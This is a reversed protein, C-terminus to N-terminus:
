NGSPDEDPPNPKFIMKKLNALPNIFFMKVQLANYVETAPDRPLYSNVYTIEVQIDNNIGYGGGLTLENRDFFQSGSVSGSTKFMLEESGLAYVVGSRIIKGNLPYQCRMQMRLRFSTEYKGDNNQINRNELRLRANLTYPIKKFFYAAQVGSRIEPTKVQKLDIVERNSFYGLFGSFRWRPSYYYHFWGRVFLQSNEAFMSKNDETASWQQGINVELGSRKFAARSITIESRFQGYSNTQSFLFSSPMAIAFFFIILRKHM